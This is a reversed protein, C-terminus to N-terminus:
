STKTARHAFADRRFTYLAEPDVPVEIVTFTKSSIAEEVLSGIQSPDEVYAGRAGFSQAVIDFRPNKLDVGLYRKGFFDKQYAKEAGWSNNNMVIAVLAVQHAVATGIEGLTMSLGGDGMLSIVPREPAALKAGLGAPLSFGVLGFDLQTLLAPPQFYQLADAAQLCLTGGDLTFISERPVSKRLEAFLRAPKILPSSEEAARQRQEALLKKNKQFEELWTTHNLQPITKIRELLGRAVRNVDGVIGLHVPFYRGIAAPEIEVQIIQANRPVFEHSYFTSSFGLRTGLALIVDANKMTETAAWNGRPGVQGGFLEFDSPVIDGHGASAVVPCQLQEALLVTFETARSWKIGGGGVIVPRAAAALIQVAEDLLQPDAQWETLGSYSKQRSPVFEVEIEKGMFDRPINVAVPGRRGAMCTKLGERLFEPIREPQYVMLSKKTVPAFLSQQDVEQFSEKGMHSTSAAGVIALVPSYSLFAQAIGTILNTAGPGNQGALCVGPGGSVRAYADAMIAACTEHRAGIYEVESCDYLADYMEMTSSGILGFVHRVGESRLTEVAAFGGTMMAM